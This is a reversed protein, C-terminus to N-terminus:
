ANPESNQSQFVHGVGPSPGTNTRRFDDTAGAIPHKDNSPSNSGSIEDAEPFSHGAGGPSNGSKTPRFPHPLVQKKGSASHHAANPLHDEKHMAGNNDVQDSQKSDTKNGSKIRRGEASFVLYSYVIVALVFIACKHM